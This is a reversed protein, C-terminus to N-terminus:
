LQCLQQYALRRAQLFHHHSRLFDLLTIKHHRSIHNKFILSHSTKEGHTNSNLKSFTNAIAIASRSVM